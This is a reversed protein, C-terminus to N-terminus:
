FLTLKEGFNLSFKYFIASYLESDLLKTSKVMNSKFLYYYYRTTNSQSSPIFINLILLSPNLGISKISIREGSLISLLKFM